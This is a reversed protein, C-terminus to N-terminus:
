VRFGELTRARFRAEIFLKGLSLPRSRRVFSLKGLPESHSAPILGVNGKSSTRSEYVAALPRLRGASRSITLSGTKLNNQRSNAIIEYMRFGSLVKNPLQISYEDV